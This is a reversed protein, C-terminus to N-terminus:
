MMCADTIAKTLSGKFALGSFYTAAKRASYIGKAFDTGM